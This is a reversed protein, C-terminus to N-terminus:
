TKDGEDRGRVERDREDVTGDRIQQARPGQRAQFQAVTDRRARSREDHHGGKQGVLGLDLLMDIAQFDVVEGTRVTVNM